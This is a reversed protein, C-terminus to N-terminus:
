IGVKEAVTDSRAQLAIWYRLTQADQSKEAVDSQQIIFEDLEVSATLLKKGIPVM